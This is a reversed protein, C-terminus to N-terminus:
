VQQDDELDKRYIWVKVGITGYTTYATVSAFDIDADFTQLPLSGKELHESRAIEAGNLRGSVMIKCGNVYRSAIIKELTQKMARRFPLRKEIQEAIQEAMIRASAEPVKYELIDIKINKIEGSAGEVLLNELEKRLDESGSGGRGIILGPRSTNIVVRIKDASREINIMHVSMGRLKKELFGRIKVDEQLYFSYNRLNLWKSKWDKSIGMRHAIPSVKQGM